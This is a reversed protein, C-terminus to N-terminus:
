LPPDSCSGSQQRGSHWASTLNPSPLNIIYYIKEETQLHFTKKNNHVTEKHVNKLKFDKNVIYFNPDFGRITIEKFNSAAAAAVIKFWFIDWVPTQQSLHLQPDSHHVALGPRM